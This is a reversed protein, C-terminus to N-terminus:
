PRMWGTIRSGRRVSAPMGRRGCRRWIATRPRRRIHRNCYLATLDTCGASRLPCPREVEPLTATGTSSVVPKGPRACGKLLGEWLLEYSAIKYFDVHPLMEGVAQLHSPTRSFSMGAAHTGASLDSLFSVPLEWAEGKLVKPDSQPAEVAVPERIGFLQFRLAGCGIEAASRVFDLCLQLDRCHNSAVGCVDSFPPGEGSKAPM